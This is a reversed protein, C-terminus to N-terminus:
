RVVLCFCVNHVVAGHAAFPRTRADFAFLASEHATFLALSRLELGRIGKSTELALVFESARFGKHMFHVGFPFRDFFRSEEFFLGLQQGVRLWKDLPLPFVTTLMGTEAEPFSHGNTFARLEFLRDLREERARFFATPSEHVLM